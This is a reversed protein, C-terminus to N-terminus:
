PVPPSWVVNSLVVHPMHASGLGPYWPHLLFCFSLDLFLALSITCCYLLQQWAQRGSTLTQSEPYFLVLEQSSNESRWMSMFVCVSACVSVCLVCVCMTCVYLCVTYVCLPMYFVPAYM